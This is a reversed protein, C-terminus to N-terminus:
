ISGVDNIFNLIHPDAHFIFAFNLNWCIRIVARLFTHILGTQIFNHSLSSVRVKNIYCVWVHIHSVYM